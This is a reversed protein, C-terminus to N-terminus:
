SHPTAACWSLCTLEVAVVVVSAACDTIGINMQLLFGEVKSVLHRDYMQYRDTSEIYIYQAGRDIDSHVLIVIDRPHLPGVYFLKSSDLICLLRTCNKHINRDYIM